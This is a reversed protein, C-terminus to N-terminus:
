NTFPVTATQPPRPPATPPRGCGHLPILQLPGSQADRRLVIRGTVPEILQPPTGWQDSISTREANWKMGSNACRAAAVLLIQRSRALPQDDLATLSVACFPTQLRFEADATRVTQGGIWGVAAPVRPADITLRGTRKEGAEWTLEGTDAAIRGEPPTFGLDAVRTTAPADLRAVRFRHVLPLLPSLDGDLYFRTRDWRPQQLSDYTRHEDYSVTVLKKAPQVDDRQFLLSATPMQVMKSVENALDFYGTVCDGSLSRDDYRHLLTYGNASRDLSPLWAQTRNLPCPPM